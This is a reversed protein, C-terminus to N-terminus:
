LLTSNADWVSKEPMEFGFIVAIDFMDPTYNEIDVQTEVGYYTDSIHDFTTMPNPILEDLLKRPSISVESRLINIGQRRLMEPDLPPQDLHNADFTNSIDYDKLWKPSFLYFKYKNKINHVNDYFFFKSTDSSWWHDNRVKDIAEKTPTQITYRSCFIWNFIEGKKIPSKVKFPHKHSEYTNGPKVELKFTELRPDSSWIVTKRNEQLLFNFEDDYGKKCELTTIDDAAEAKFLGIYDLIVTSPNLISFIYLYTSDLFNYPHKVENKNKDDNVIFNKIDGM